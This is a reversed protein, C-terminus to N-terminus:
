WFPLQHWSLSPVVQQIFRTFLLRYVQEIGKGGESFHPTLRGFRHFKVGMKPAHLLLFCTVSTRALRVDVKRRAKGAIMVQPSCGMTNVELNLELDTM